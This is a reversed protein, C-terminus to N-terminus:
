VLDLDASLRSMLAGLAVAETELLDAHTQTTDKRPGNLM